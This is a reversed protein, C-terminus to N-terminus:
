SPAASTRTSTSRTAGTTCVTTPRHRWGRTSGGSGGSWRPTSSSASRSRSSPSPAYIALPFGVLPAWLVLMPQYLAEVPSLRLAAVLSLDETSHHVSHAAWLLPIRHEAVHVVYNVFDDIVFFAIWVLPSSVPLHWPAVSTVLVFSLAVFALQTALGLGYSIAGVTLSLRADRADVPSGKRRRLQWELCILGVGITVLLLYWSSM